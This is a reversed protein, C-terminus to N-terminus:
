QKGEGDPGGLGPDFKSLQAARPLVLHIRTGKGPQSDLRLKGGLFNTVMTHVIHLGLGTNGQDRRTTFFPDFANRRVNVSMGCGDDCFLVEVADKGTARVRIDITGPRGDPFAHTVSNLLLNTLVQGYPGPYSNM